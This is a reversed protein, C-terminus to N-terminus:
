AITFDEHPPPRPCAFVCVCVCVRARAVASTPRAPQAAASVYLQNAFFALFFIAVWVMRSSWARTPAPNRRLAALCAGYGASTAGLTARAHPTLGTRAFGFPSAAECAWSGAAAVVLCAALVGWTSGEFPQLWIAVGGVGPVAPRVATVLAMSTALVPFSLAVDPPPARLAPLGLAAALPLSAGLSGAMAGSLVPALVADAESAATAPAPVPPLPVLSFTFTSNTATSYALRVNDLVQTLVTPLM